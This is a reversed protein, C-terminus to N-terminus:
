TDERPDARVYRCFLFGAEALVHGLGLPETVAADDPGPPGGALIRGAPGGALVPSMTLCLEDLLGATMLQGLLSPGGECLIRAHGLDGLARVAAAMSVRDTGAEIVEAHRALAARRDDPAAKSTLVITRADPPAATLLPSEPDLDLTGTVVAIPPTAPRGARLAPVLASPRAPKYKEARVTGSGVLIVDALSRLVRFLQRDGPGSLGGSRGDIEVAGDASAVMNARVWPRGPTAPPYAYRGALFGGPDGGDDEGGGQAPGAPYIQQV